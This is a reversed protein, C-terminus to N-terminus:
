PLVLSINNYIIDRFKKIRQRPIIMYNDSNIYEDFTVRDELMQKVDIGFTEKSMEPITILGYIFDKNKKFINMEQFSKNKAEIKGFYENLWIIINVSEGFTKIIYELGKITDHLSQGGTIVVHIFITIENQSLFSLIDGENLYATLPIFSSAGNDIVIPDTSKLIMEILKDFKRIDVKDGNMIELSKVSLKKFGLFTKNVPDTDVCLPTTNKHTLYQAILTTVLTKGVGGKGQLTLHLDM